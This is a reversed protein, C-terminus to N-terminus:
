RKGNNQVNYSLMEAIYIADRLNLLRPPLDMLAKEVMNRITMDETLLYTKFLEYIQRVQTCKKDCVSSKLGRVQSSVDYGCTKKLMLIDIIMSDYTIENPLMRVIEILKEKNVNTPRNNYKMMYYKSVGVLEAVMLENYHSSVYQSIHNDVDYLIEEPNDEIHGTAFLNEILWCCGTIGHEFNMDDKIMSINDQIKSLLECAIDEYKRVNTIDSLFALFQCWGMYGDLGVSVESISTCMLWRVLTNKINNYRNRNTLIMKDNENPIFGYEEVHTVLNYKKFYDAAEQNHLATGSQIPRTHLVSVEDIIAMDKKNTKILLPWHTETGWGTSNENFTFLVTKLAERSFCPVMMEVFNTYRLSCCNDRLVHGWTFYSCRLAPQAIKLNYKEMCEFIQMISIADMIIDDDPIFFYDYKDIYEPHINLYQYTLWLKQGKMHYVYETDNKFTEISNDYVILHLDFGVMARDEIWHQHLSNRGVASIVCYKKKDM